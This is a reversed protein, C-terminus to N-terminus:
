KKPASDSKPSSTDSAVPQNGRSFAQAAAQVSITGQADKMQDFKKEAYKMFEEKSVMGDHNTDMEEANFRLNGQAFDKAAEIVPISPANKAMMGWMTEGYKMFEDQTIRGDGNADM